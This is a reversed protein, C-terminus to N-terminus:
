LIGFDSIMIIYVKIINLRKSEGKWFQNKLILNLTKFNEKHKNRKWGTKNERDM